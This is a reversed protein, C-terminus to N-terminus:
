SEALVPPPAALEDLYLLPPEASTDPVIMAIVMYSRGGGAREHLVDGPHPLERFEHEDPGRFTGGSTSDRTSVRAIPV